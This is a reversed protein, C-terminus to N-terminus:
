EPIQCEAGINNLWIINKDTNDAQGNMDGDASLYGSTGSQSMWVGSKDQETITGDADFDGAIMGFIGPSIEKLASEDGLAQGANETFDYSFIGDAESPTSSSIVGLHNRHWIAVYINHSITNKFVLDSIGDMGVVSGDKLLFGAAKEVSTSSTASLADVADRIEILVWDAINTDPISAVSETGTYNWPSINFPQELPLMQGSNLATNMETGNFCGELFVTLDLLVPYRFYLKFRQINDNPTAYFTYAPTEKLDILVNNQTDALYISVSPDFSDLQSATIAYNTSAGVKFGLQVVLNILIEPLANIALNTGPIISYLQPAANSGPLKYADYQPDFGPTSGPIFVVITQDSYGNGTATLMLLNVLEKSAVPIQSQAYLENWNGTIIGAILSLILVKFKM